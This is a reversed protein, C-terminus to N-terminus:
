KHTEKELLLRNKEHKIYIELTKEIDDCVPCNINNNNELAEVPCGGGCLLVFKCEKCKEMEFPDRKTWANLRNRDIRVGTKDFTGIRYNRNGVCTLCTSITGDPSFCYQAGFTGECYTKKWPKIQNEPTSFFRTVMGIVPSLLTDLFGNDGKYCGNTILKDVMESDTLINETKERANYCKVPSAYPILLPNQKWGRQDIIERIESICEVNESDVNIRLNIKFGISLLKDICDCISNFTGSGDVRIRRRDHISQNGDITIQIVSITKKYEKLLEYYKDEIAAGNTVINAPINLGEAFAFIKKVIHYNSLLLPEGGFLTIRPLPIEKSTTKEEQLKVCCKKIHTFITELQEESMLKFNAHQDDKEFCYTCRLNCGMTPCIVFTTNIVKSLSKKNISRLTDIIKQEEEKSEFIYGRKKLKDFLESSDELSTKDTNIMEQINALTSNDIIDTASTLTNLLLTNNTDLRYLCVYRTFYAM